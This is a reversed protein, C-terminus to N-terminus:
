KRRFNRLYMSAGALGGLGFAQAIVGEPGTAALVQPTEPTKPKCETADKPLYNDVESPKVWIIEGNTPNCVQVNDKCADDNVPKYDKVESPKVKIITGTAPDCVEVKPKCAEHGKPLYNHAESEKVSIIKGTKPDCVEVTFVKPKCAPDDKPLYNHAESEKVIIIKGTKADCVEVAKEQPNCNEKSKRVVKSAINRGQHGDAGVVKIEPGIYADMQANKCENPVAITVTNEANTGKKVVVKKSAFQTQPYATPNGFFPAGNYNDPMVYSSVFITVDECLPRDNLTKFHVTDKSIWRGSYNKNVTGDICNAPRATDDAARAPAVTAFVGLSLAVLAAALVKKSIVM